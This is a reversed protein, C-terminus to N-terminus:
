PIESNCVTPGADADWALGGAGVNDLRISYFGAPGKMRFRIRGLMDTTGHVTRSRDPGSMTAEVYVDPCRRDDGDRIEALFAARCPADDPYETDLARLVAVRVPETFLGARPLGDPEPELRVTRRRRRLMTDEPIRDYITPVNDVGLSLTTPAGADLSM